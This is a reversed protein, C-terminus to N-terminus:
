FTVEKQFGPRHLVGGPLPRLLCIGEGAQPMRNSEPKFYVWLKSLIFEFIILM